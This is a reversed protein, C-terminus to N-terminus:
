HFKVFVPRGFASTKQSNTRERAVKGSYYARLKLLDAITMRWLERENIKYRQQDRTARGAIVADLAALAIEAQSRGDYVGTVASLDAIVTLEGSGAEMIATGQTARLSYWYTGAAWGSTTAAPATFLFADGQPAATLNIAQPGRIVANLGWTTAPYECLEVVAQFDLGANIQVPLTSLCRPM